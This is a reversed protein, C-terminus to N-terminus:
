AQLMLRACFVASTATLRWGRWVPIRGNWEHAHHKCVTLITHHQSVRNAYWDQCTPPSRASACAAHKSGLAGVVAGVAGVGLGVGAGVGAGVGLGVGLGVGAGVGVGVGAGVGVGVEAVVVPPPVPPQASMVTVRVVLDHPESIDHFMSPAM